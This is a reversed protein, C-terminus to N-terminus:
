TQPKDLEALLADAAKVAFVATASDSWKADAHVSLLGTLAAAAFRDRRNDRDVQAAWFNYLRVKQDPECVHEVNRADFLGACEPCKFIEVM